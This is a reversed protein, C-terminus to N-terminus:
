SSPEYSWGSQTRCKSEQNKTLQEKHQKRLFTTQFGSFDLFAKSPQDQGFQCQQTYTVARLYIDGNSKQAIEAVCCDSPFFVGFLVIPLLNVKTEAARKEEIDEIVALFKQRLCYM